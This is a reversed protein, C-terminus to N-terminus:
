QITETEHIPVSNFRNLLDAVIRATEENVNVYRFTTTPQTHGLVLGVEPLPM